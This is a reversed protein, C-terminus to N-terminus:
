VSGIVEVPAGFIEVFKKKRSRHLVDYFPTNWKRNELLYVSVPSETGGRGGRGVIQTVDNFQSSIFMFIDYINRFDVGRYSVSSALFLDAEGKELMEAIERIDAPSRRNGRMKKGDWQVVSKGARAYHRFLRDGHKTFKYPVYLTGSSRELCLDIAKFIVDNKFLNDQSAMQRVALAAREDKVFKLRYPETEAPLGETTIIKLSIEKKPAIYYISFGINELVDLCDSNVSRIVTWDKLWIGKVKEPSASYGYVFRKRGCLDLIKRTSPPVSESEDIQILEVDEFWKLEEPDESRNSNMFAVPNLFRTNETSVGLQEARLRLTDCVQNNNALVLKKGAGRYAANLYSIVYSKGWGTKIQLVGRFKRTVRDRVIGYQEPTLFLPDSLDFSAQPDRYEDEIGSTVYRVSEASLIRLMQGYFSMPLSFEGDTDEPFVRRKDKSTFLRGLRRVFARDGDSYRVLFRSRDDECLSMEIM